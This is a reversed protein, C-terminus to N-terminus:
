NSDIVSNAVGLIEAFEPVKSEFEKLVPIRKDGDEKYWVECTGLLGKKDYVDYMLVFMRSKNQVIKVDDNEARIVESWRAMKLKTKM